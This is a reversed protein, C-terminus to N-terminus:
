SENEVKDLATALANAFDYLFDDWNNKDERSKRGIKGDKFFQKRLSKTLELQVGGKIRTQNVINEKQKGSMTSPAHEVNVGIKDLESTILEILAEDKGGIYAVSEHGTCGHISIARKSKQTLQCATDNDYHISTVHLENNGKSRDGKFTFFNYDNTQATVLALESTAPEIGGGHIALITVDHHNDISEIHWDKDENTYKQLENMTSYKDM